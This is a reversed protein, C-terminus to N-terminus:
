WASGGGPKGTSCRPYAALSRDPRADDAQDAQEAAAQSM